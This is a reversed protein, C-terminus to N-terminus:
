RRGELILSQDLHTYSVAYYAGCLEIRVSATEGVSLKDNIFSFDSNVSRRVDRKLKPVGDATMPIGNSFAQEDNSRSTYLLCAECYGRRGCSSGHNGDADNRGSDFDARAAKNGQNYLRDRICM